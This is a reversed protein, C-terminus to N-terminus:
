CNDYLYLIFDINLIYSWLISVDVGTQIMSKSVANTCDLDLFRVFTVRNVTTANEVFIIHLEGCNAQTMNM